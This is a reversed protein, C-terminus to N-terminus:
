EEVAQRDAAFRRLSGGATRAVKSRLLGSWGLLLGPPGLAQRSWRWFDFSDVHRLIKGDTFEFRADISNHVKRGTASFTYWAEWHAKGGRDDAGVEGYEIELDEGRECLMQWMASVDRGRLDFVPDTFHAQPHYCAAMGAANRAALSRYLTEILQANPHM